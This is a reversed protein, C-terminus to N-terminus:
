AMLTKLVKKVNLKNLNTYKQGTGLFLIPQGTQHVMSVAAGVKDDVTDFKTLM